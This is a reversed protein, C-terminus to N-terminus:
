AIAPDAVVALAELLDPTASVIGLHRTMYYLAGGHEVARERSHMALPSARLRYEAAGTLVINARSDVCELTGLVIRGDKLVLKCTQSIAMNYLEKRPGTLERTPPVLCTADKDYISPRSDGLSTDPTIQLGSLSLDAM